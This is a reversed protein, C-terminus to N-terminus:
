RTVPFIHLTSPTVAYGIPNPSGTTAADAISGPATGLFYRKGPVLGVGYQLDVGSYYTCPENTDADAFAFGVYAAPETAAAGSALHLKGDAMQLYVFQGALIPEGATRMAEQHENGPQETDMRPRNPRTLDAM